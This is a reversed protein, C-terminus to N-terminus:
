VMQQRQVLAALAAKAEARRRRRALMQAGTVDGAIGVMGGVAMTAAQALPGRNTATVVSSVQVTAAGAAFMLVWWFTRAADPLRRRATPTLRAIRDRAFGDQAFKAAVTAANAVVENPSNVLGPLDHWKQVMPELALEEEPSRPPNPYFDPQM